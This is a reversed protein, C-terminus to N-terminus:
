KEELREWIKSSARWTMYPRANTSIMGCDCFVDGSRVLMIFSEFNIPKGFKIGCYRNNVDKLCKFWGLKNFKREVRERLVVATWRALTVVGSRYTAPVVTSKDPREDKLFDYQASVNNQPDVAMLQGAENYGGVKPFVSGSWSYREISGDLLSRRAVGFVRLFKQRDMAKAKGGRYLGEDPSWDGFSIKASDKKMEFGKFDPENKGNVSLGMARTLWDGEAGDHKLNYGVLCPVLGNVHSYFRVRIERKIDDRSESM